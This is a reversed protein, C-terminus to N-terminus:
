RERLLLPPPIGAADWGLALAGLFGDDRAIRLSPGRM